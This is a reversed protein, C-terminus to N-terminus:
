CCAYYGISIMVSTQNFDDDSSLCIIQDFRLFANKLSFLIKINLIVYFDADAFIKLTLSEVCYNWRIVNYFKEGTESSSSADAKTQKSNLHDVINEIKLKRSAMSCKTDRAPPSRNNRKIDSPNTSASIEATEHDSKLCNSLAVCDVAAVKQVSSEDNKKSTNDKVVHEKSSSGMIFNEKTKFCDVPCESSSSSTACGSDDSVYNNSVPKVEDTSVIGTNGCKVPDIHDVDNPTMLKSDHSNEPPVVSKTIKIKNDPCIISKFTTNNLSSLSGKETNEKQVCTTSTTDESLEDSNSDIEVSPFDDSRTKYKSNTSKRATPRSKFSTTSPEKCALLSMDACNVILTQNRRCFM